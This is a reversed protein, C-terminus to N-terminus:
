DIRRTTTFHLLVHLTPRSGRRRAVLLLGVAAGSALALTSPEPVAAYEFTATVTFRPDYSHSHGGAVPSQGSFFATAGSSPNLQVGGQFSLIHSHSGVGSVNSLGSPITIDGAGMTFPALDGGSLSLNKTQTGYNHTLGGTSNLSVIVRAVWAGPFLGVLQPTTPTITLAHTHSSGNGTTLSFSGIDLGDGSYAPTTIPHEHSGGSTTPSFLPTFGQPASAFTNTSSLTVSSHSHVGSNSTVGSLLTVELSVSSLIGLSTDFRPVVIDDTNSRTVTLFEARAPQVSILLALACGISQIAQRSRSKPKEILTPVPVARPTPRNAIANLM